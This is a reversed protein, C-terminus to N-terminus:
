DTEAQAIIADVVEKVLNSPIAFGLSEYGGIKFNTIGVIESHINVLPGGSNGPNLPVDTQIYGINNQAIRNTASIIGETVTFDLGGPNGLAIVKEGVKLEDSDGFDLYYEYDHGISLVAIDTLRNFGILSVPYTEKTYTYVSLDSKGSVVHYNTVLYGNPKVFVGSGQGTETIVSVVAPLVDDIIASFDLKEVSIDKVDGKLEELQINSQSEVEEILDSLADISKKSEEKVDTLENNLFKNQADMTTNLNTLKVDLNSLGKNYDDVAVSLKNSLSEIKEELKKVSYYQYGIISGVLLVVLLSLIIINKQKKM